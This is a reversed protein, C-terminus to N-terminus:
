GDAETTKVDKETRSWTGGLSTPLPRTPTGKNREQAGELYPM